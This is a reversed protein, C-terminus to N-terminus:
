QTVLRVLLPLRHQATSSLSAGQFCIPDGACCHGGMAGAGDRGSSLAAGLRWSREAQELHVTQLCNERAKWCRIEWYSHRSTARYLMSEPKAASCSSAEPVM